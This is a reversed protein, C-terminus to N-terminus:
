TTAQGNRHEELRQLLRRGLAPDPVAEVPLYWHEPGAFAVCKVADKETMIVPRGDGFDIDAATYAHHDAFPHEIPELGLARLDAFFRAPNGIGAVAHVPGGAFTAVEAVMSDDGVRHLRGGKLRMGLEDGKPEGNCVRFDVTTLRGPAERLPGAPLCRANGFRRMGDVVAIEIDRGLALHQLGDDAVILDCDHERLLMSADAVRDPGVVMPCGTRRALLVPEDGVEAPDSDPEVARPWTRARGGYGRSVIGPRYGAGRLLEALWCVLPTKGTGGVTINGVVVVPVPLRTSRLLGVRYCWRRLAVVACYLWSLPTLARSLLTDHQWHRELWHTGVSGQGQGPRHDV